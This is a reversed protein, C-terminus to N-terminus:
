KPDEGARPAAAFMKRARNLIETDFTAVTDVCLADLDSDSMLFTTIWNEAKSQEAGTKSWNATAAFAYGTEVGARNKTRMAIIHLAFYSNKEDAVTVDGLKRLERSAASIIRTKLGSDDPATVELLVQYVPQAATLPACILAFALIAQIRLKNM